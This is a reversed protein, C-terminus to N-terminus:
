QARQAKEVVVGKVAGAPMAGGKTRVKGWGMGSRRSLKEEM